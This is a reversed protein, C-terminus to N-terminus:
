CGVEVPYAAGLGTPVPKVATALVVEIILLMDDFFRVKRGMSAMM